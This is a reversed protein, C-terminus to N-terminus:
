FVQQATFALTKRGLINAGEQVSAPDLAFLAGPYKLNAAGGATIGFPVWPSVGLTVTGGAVTAGETVRVLAMSARGSITFSLSVYDGAMLLLGNPVGSLTISRRDAAIAALTCAGSFGSPLGAGFCSRPIRRRADYGLFSNQGGELSAIFAQWLGFWESKLAVTQYRARWVAPGVDAVQVRTARLPTRTKQWQLTFECDGLMPPDPMLRPNPLSM